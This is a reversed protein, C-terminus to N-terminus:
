KSVITGSACDKMDLYQQVRDSFVFDERTKIVSFDTQFRKELTQMTNRVTNRHIELEESTRLASCDNKLYTRIFRVYDTGNDHDWQRIRRYLDSQLGTLDTEREMVEFVHFYYYEQYFFVQRRAHMKKGYFLATRAQIFAYKLHRLQCFANSIGITYRYNRLLAALQKKETSSMFDAAYEPSIKLMCITNDQVFIKFATFQRSLMRALFSLPVPEARVFKLAALRFHGEFSLGAIRRVKDSFQDPDMDPNSILQSLFADSMMQGSMQDHFDRQFGLSLNKMFINVLDLFGQDPDTGCNFLACYGLMSDGSIFQMYINNQGPADAAPAVFFANKKIGSFIHKEQLKEMTHQDTYGKQITEQFTRYDYGDSSEVYAIVDFCSNFCIMPHQLVSASLDLLTQLPKGELVAIHMGKDWESLRHYIAFVRNMVEYLCSQPVTLFWNNLFLEKEKPLTERACLFLIRKENEKHQTKVAPSWLRIGTIEGSPDLRSHIELETNLDTLYYLIINVSLQM